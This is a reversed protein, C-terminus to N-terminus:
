DDPLLSTFLGRSLTFTAKTTGHYDLHRPHHQHDLAIDSTSPRATSRWVTRRRNLTNFDAPTWWAARIARQVVASGAHHRAARREEKSASWRKSTVLM